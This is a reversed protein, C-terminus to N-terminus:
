ITPVYSSSPYSGIPAKMYAFPYSSISSKSETYTQIKSKSAIITKNSDKVGCSLKRKILIEKYADLKWVKRSSWHKGLCVRM